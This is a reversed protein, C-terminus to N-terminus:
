LKVKDGAWFIPFLSKTGHLCNLLQQITNIKQKQKKMNGPHLKLCNPQIAWYLNCKRLNGKINLVIKKNSNNPKVMSCLFSVKFRISSMPLAETFM